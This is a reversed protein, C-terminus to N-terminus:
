DSPKGFRKDEMPVNPKIDAVTMKDVAQSASRTIQFPMKVGAVARYDGYDVQWPLSGLPTRTLISRRVLLGSGADFYLTETVGNATGRLVNVDRGELRTPKGPQIAPYREKLHLALALDPVRFAQEAVPLDVSFGRSNMWATAGDFGRVLQTPEPGSTERYRDGKQEITVPLTRGERTTVTGSMVRSELHELAARGGLAEVYKSLVDDVPPGQPAAVAPAGSRGGSAAQAVVQEPTLPQAVQLPSPQNRGQHCTGCTITVGFSGANITRVMRMMERARKKLPKDDREPAWGAPASPDQVHCDTCVRGTAAAVYRMAAELQDAPVDTLVQINKYKAPALPPNSGSQRAGIAAVAFGFMGAAALSISVVPRRHM